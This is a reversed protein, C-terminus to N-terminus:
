FFTAVNREGFKMEFENKTKNTQEPKRLLVRRASFRSLIHYFTSNEALDLFPLRGKFEYRCTYRCIEVDHERNM